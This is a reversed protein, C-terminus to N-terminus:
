RIRFLRIYSDGIGKKYQMILELPIKPPDQVKNLLLYVPETQARILSYGPVVFPDDNVEITELNTNDRFYINLSATTLGGYGYVGETVVTVKQKAAEQQLYSVIEKIGYGAPWGNAYQFLDTKPIFARPLDTIIKIDSYLMFLICVGLIIFVTKIKGLVPKFNLIGLAILPLLPLTMSFIHRPYALKAFLSYAIIRLLFWLSLVIIETRFKKIRYMFILPILPIFVFYQFVWKIFEWFRAPWSLIVSTNMVEEFSYVFVSNKINVFDAYPSLFIVSYFLYAFGASLLAYFIWKAIKNKNQILLVTVPLLYINLFGTSKTLMGAGLSHALLFMSGLNVRTALYVAFYLSLVNFLGVFNESLVMRNTIVAFPYFVYLGVSIISVWKNKFLKYSLLFLVLLTFLGGIISVIKAAILPNGVFRIAISIVWIFLPQKGDVLSIFRKSADYTGEQARWVNIAEDNFLPTNKLNFIRLVFFIILLVFVAIIEKRNKQIFGIAKEM